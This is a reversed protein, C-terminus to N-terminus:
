GLFVLEDVVRDIRVAHIHSCVLNSAGEDVPTDVIGIFHLEVREDGLNGGVAEVQHLVLEAVVNDLM